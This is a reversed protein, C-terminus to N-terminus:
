ARNAVYKVDLIAFYCVFTRWDRVSNIEGDLFLIPEREHAEVNRNVLPLEIQNGDGDEIDAVLDDDSESSFDDEGAFILELVEERSYRVNAM